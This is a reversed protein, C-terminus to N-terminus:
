GSIVTYIGNILFEMKYISSVKGLQSPNGSSAYYYMVYGKDVTLGSVLYSFEENISAFYKNNM